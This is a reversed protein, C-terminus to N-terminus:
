LNDILAQRVEKLPMTQGTWLEFAAAGQHLLMGLGNICLCGQSAAMKLLATQRPEYIIDAVVLEPRLWSKDPILNGTEQPTMGVNTANVLIDSYYIEQKLLEEEELPLFHLPCNTKVSINELQSKVEEKAELNRAFVNIESVGDFAVQAAIALAAGGAGLITIKKNRLSVGEEALSAVFGVGDTSHGILRGEQNVVTNISGLLTAVESAEDVLEFGRQKNPMSLNVGLMELHRISEFIDALKDPGVEFALYVADVGRANFATNQILPSISHKIPSAVVAALKTYGTIM